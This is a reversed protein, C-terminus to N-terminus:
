FQKAAIAPSSGVIFSDFDNTNGNCWMAIYLVCKNLTRKFLSSPNSGELIKKDLLFKDDM